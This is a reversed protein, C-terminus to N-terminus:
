QAVRVPQKAKIQIFRPLKMKEPVNVQGWKDDDVFLMNGGKVMRRMALHQESLPQLPIVILTTDPHRILRRAEIVTEVKSVPCDDSVFAVQKRGSLEKLTKRNGKANTLALTPPFVFTVKKEGPCHAIERFNEIIKHALSVMSRNYYFSVFYNLVEHDPIHPGLVKLWNVAGDVVAKQYRIKIDTAPTGEIHYVVRELMMFSQAILRRLMDSHYLDQYHTGVFSYIKEKMAQLENVTHISGTADLLQKSKVMLLPLDYQDPGAKEGQLLRYFFDNEESDTFSPLSNANVIHLTFSQEGLIVPYAQGHEFLLLALGRYSTEVKKRVGAALKEQFLTIERLGNYGKINLNVAEDSQITLSSWSNGGWSLIFITFLIGTIVWKSIM